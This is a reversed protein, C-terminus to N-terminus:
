KDPKSPPEAEREALYVLATFTEGNEYYDLDDGPKDLLRSISFMGLGGDEKTSELRDDRKKLNGDFRNEVMIRLAGGESKAFLRIFRGDECKLNAEFANQLLNGLIVCLTLSDVPIIEGLTVQADFRIKEKHSRGAYEQLLSNVAPNLCFFMESGEDLENQLADLYAQREADDMHRLAHIHHRFDHRILRIQKQYTQIKDYNERKLEIVQRAAQLMTKSRQHDITRVRDAIMLIYLALMMVCIALYFLLVPMQSELLLRETNFITRSGFFLMILFAVPIALILASDKPSMQEFLTLIREKLWKVIFLTYLIVMVVSLILCIHEYSLTSQSRLLWGLFADLSTLLEAFLWASIYLFAKLLLSGEFFIMLLIFFITGFIFQFIGFPADPIRFLSQCAIMIVWIYVSAAAINEHSGVKPKLCLFVPAMRIVQEMLNLFVRAAEQNM